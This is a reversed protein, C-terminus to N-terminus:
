AKWVLHWVSACNLCIIGRQRYFSASWFFCLGCYSDCVWKNWASKNNHSRSSDKKIGRWQSKKEMCFNEPLLVFLLFRPVSWYITLHFCLYFSTSILMIIKVLLFFFFQLLFFLWSIWSASVALMKRRGGRTENRFPHWRWCSDDEVPSQFIFVHYYVNCVHVSFSVKRHGLVLVTYKLWSTFLRASCPSWLKAWRECGLFSLHDPPLWSNVLLWGFAGLM